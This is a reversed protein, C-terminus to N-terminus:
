YTTTTSSVGIGPAPAVTTTRTTTTSPEERKVTVCGTALFVLALCSLAITKKM